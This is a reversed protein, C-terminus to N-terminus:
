ISTIWRKTYQLKLKDYTGRQGTVQHYLNNLYEQIVLQPLSAARTHWLRQDHRWTNLSPRVPRPTMAKISPNTEVGPSKLPMRQVQVPPRTPSVIPLRQVQVPIIPMNTRITPVHIPLQKSAPITQEPTPNHKITPIVPPAHPIACQLLKAISEVSRTTTDGCNLLPIQNNHNRLIDLINGVLQWLYDETDM